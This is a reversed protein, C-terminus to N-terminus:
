RLGLEEATKEEETFTSCHAASRQAIADGFRATRGMAKGTRTPELRFPFATRAAKADKKCPSASLFTYILSSARPDERLGATPPQLPAPRGARQKMGRIIM